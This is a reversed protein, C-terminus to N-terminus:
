FVATFRGIAVHVKEFFSHFFVDWKRNIKRLNRDQKKHNKSSKGFHHFGEPKILNKAQRTIEKDCFPYCCCRVRMHLHFLSKWYIKVKPPGPVYTKEINKKSFCWFCLSKYPKQGDQAAGTEIRKKLSKRRKEFIRTRPAGLM